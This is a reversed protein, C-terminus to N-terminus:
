MSGLLRDAPTPGSGVLAEVEAVSRVISDSLVEPGDAGILVDDEIRVGGFPLWSEVADWDVADALKARLSPDALLAPVFYVGPEITVVM